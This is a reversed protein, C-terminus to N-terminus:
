QHVDFDGRSRGERASVDSLAEFFQRRKGFWWQYYRDLLQKDNQLHSRTIRKGQNAERAFLRLNKDNFSLPM